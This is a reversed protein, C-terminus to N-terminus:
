GSDRTMCQGQEHVPVTLPSGGNMSAGNMSAGNM